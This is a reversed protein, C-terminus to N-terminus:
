KGFERAFEEPTALRAFSRTTWKDAEKKSVINYGRYLKGVGNWSVNKESFVAVKEESKAAKKPSVSGRDATSSGIASNVNEVSPKSKAKKVPEVSAIVKEATEVVSPPTVELEVVEEVVLPAKEAVVPKTEAEPEPAVAPEEVVVEKVAEELVVDESELKLENLENESM